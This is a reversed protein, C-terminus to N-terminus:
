LLHKQWGFVVFHEEGMFFSLVEQGQHGCPFSSGVLERPSPNQPLGIVAGIARSPGILRAM